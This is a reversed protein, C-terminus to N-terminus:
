TSLYVYNHNRMIPILLYIVLDDYHEKIMNELPDAPELSQIGIKWFKLEFTYRIVRITTQQTPLLETRLAATLSGLILPFRMKIKMTPPM